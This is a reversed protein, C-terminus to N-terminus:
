SSSFARYIFKLPPAMMQSAGSERISSCMRVSSVAPCARACSIPGHSPSLGGNIVPWARILRRVGLPRWKPCAANSVRACSGIPAGTMAAAVRNICASISNALGAFYPIRLRFLKRSHREGKCLRSPTLLRVADLPYEVLGARGLKLLEEALDAREILAKM